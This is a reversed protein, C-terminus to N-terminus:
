DLIPVSMLILYIFTLSTSEMRKLPMMNGLRMSCSGDPIFVGALPEVESTIRSKSTKYNSTKELQCDTSSSNQNPPRKKVKQRKKLTLLPFSNLIECYFWLVSYFLYMRHTMEGESGHQKNQLGSHSLSFSILHNANPHLSNCRIDSIIQQQLM